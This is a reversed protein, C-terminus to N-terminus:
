QLGPIFGKIIEALGTVGATALLALIALTTVPQAKLLEIFALGLKVLGSEPESHKTNSSVGKHEGLHQDLSQAIDRVYKATDKREELAGALTAKIEGQGQVVTTLTDEVRTLRKALRDHDDDTFAVDDDEPQSQYLAISMPTTQM